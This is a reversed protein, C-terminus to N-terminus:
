LMKQPDPVTYQVVDSGSAVEISAPKGTKKKGPVRATEVSWETPLHEIPVPAKDTRGSLGSPVTKQEGEPATQNHAITAKIKRKREQQNQYRVAVGEKRLGNEQIPRIETETSVINPKVRPIDSSNRIRLHLGGLVGEGESKSISPAKNLSPSMIERIGARAAATQQMDRLSAESVGALDSRPDASIRMSRLGQELKGRENAIIPSDALGSEVLTKRDRENRRALVEERSRHKERTAPSKAKEVKADIAAQEEATTRTQLPRGYPSKRDPSRVMANDPNKNGLLGLTEQARTVNRNFKTSKKGTTGKAATLLEEAKANQGAVAAEEANAKAKQRAERNAQAQAKRALEKASARRGGKAASSGSGGTPEVAPPVAAPPVAAPDASAAREAAKKKDRAEQAVIKKARAELVNERGKKRAAKSTAPMRNGQVPPEPPNSTDVDFPIGGVGPAPPAPNARPKNVGAANDAARKRSTMTVPATEGEITFETAGPRDAATADGARYKKLFTAMEKDSRKAM